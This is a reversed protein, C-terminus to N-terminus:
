FKLRVGMRYARGLTDYNIANAGGVSGSSFTPERDFVNSVSAFVQFKDLKLFKLDYSVNLNTLFYDGTTNDSVSYSVTPDYDADDPGTKPNQLDIHGKSVWRTQVTGTFGSLMYSLAVNGTWSAAPAVDSLFGSDGGTQGVLDVQMPVFGAGTVPAVQKLMHTAASSVSFQGPLSGFWETPLRYSFAFDLGKAIYPNQNQYLTKMSTINTRAANPNGAQGPRAPGFTLLSCLFQDGNFCGTVAAPGGLSLSLGGTLKIKYFDMSFQMGQLAGTPQLVIGVTGTNAKEPKLNTTGVLLWDTPDANQGPGPPEGTIWPNTVSGFLSGAPITQSYFLERFNPARLDRSYSGRLRLWDTVDWVSGLKWSTINNKSSDGVSANGTAGSTKYQAARAAANLSLQKVAPLGALLPAEVEVFAEAVKTSGAFSDGYQLNFDTRLATPDDGADNSLKDKRYEAGLAASIPGAWGEFLKGSVSGAFVDQRIVNHETLASFAYDLAAQSAGSTGFPNLPKCGQLLIPDFSSGAPAGAIDSRCIPQGNTPSGVRTDIISDMALSYRWNTRYGNGIQDRVTRGYQYYADWSWNAGIRGNLGLVGRTVKTDTDVVQLNQGQWNKEVITGGFCFENPFTAFPANGVRATLADRAATTLTGLYANDGKICNAAANQGSEFQNNTGKVQGYSLEVYSNLSDTLQFEGHSFMTKRNVDPQMTLNTYARDGDGGVVLGTNSLWGQQGVAFPTVGTGADNFSFTSTAGPTNNFIVGARSLQNQRLGSVVLYHPQGAINPTWCPPPNPTGPPPCTVLGAGGFFGSTNTYIGRGEACWSRADACSQIAQMDQFEGGIVFHGRGDAFGTGFALGVRTNDGDGRETFGYDADLKVGELRKDLMINVVGSIAGSGYAASAGGTVTEIREVMNSPVFNLDVADGQTTPIFRRSDVLTLTRTGFFPNLGRLNALTSGVYFASGGTNGPTFQSVNQPVQLIADGINNIGLRELADADITTVPNPSVFDPRLIRSGTVQVEALEETDEEAASASPLYGALIVSGIAGAM